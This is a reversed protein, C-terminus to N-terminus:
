SENVEQGGRSRSKKDGVEESRKGVEQVPKKVEDTRMTVLQASRCVTRVSLHVPSRLPSVAAHGPPNTCPLTSQRGHPRDSTRGTPCVSLTIPPRVHSRVHMRAFPTIPPSACPRFSVHVSVHVSLHATLNVSPRALPRTSQRVCLNPPFVPLCTSPPRDGPPPHTSPHAPPTRQTTLLTCCTTTTETM